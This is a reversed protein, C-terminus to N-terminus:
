PTPQPLLHLASDLGLSCLALKELWDARSTSLMAHTEKSRDARQVRVIRSLSTHIQVGVDNKNVMFSAASQCCVNISCVMEKTDAESSNRRALTKFLAITLMPSCILGCSMATSM